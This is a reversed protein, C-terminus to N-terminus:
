HIPVLLDKLNITEQIIITAFSHSLSFSFLSSESTESFLTKHSQDARAGLWQHQKSPYNRLLHHPALAETGRMRTSRDLKEVICLIIIKWVFKKTKTPSPTSCIKTFILKKKEKRVCREESFQVERLGHLELSATTMYIGKSPCLPLNQGLCSGQDWEPISM